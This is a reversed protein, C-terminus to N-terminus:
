ENIVIDEFAKRRLWVSVGRDGAAFRGV